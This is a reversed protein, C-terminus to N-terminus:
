NNTLKQRKLIAQYRELDFRIWVSRHKSIQVKGLQNKGMRSLYKRQTMCIEAEQRVKAKSNYLALQMADALTEEDPDQGKKTRIVIHSGPVDQTHLWWDSGKALAFTMWDNGKDNKGM